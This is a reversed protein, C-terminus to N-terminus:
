KFLCKIYVIPYCIILILKDVINTISVFTDKFVGLKISSMLLYYCYRFYLKKDSSLLIDRLENLHYLSAVLINYLKKESLKDGKKTVCLSDHGVVYVRTVEPIFRTKYKRAAKAWRIGEPFNSAKLEFLFLDPVKAENRLVEVKRCGHMESRKNEYYHLTIYDSDYYPTPLPEGVLRGDEYVSRAKVEWFVSYFSSKELERWAKDFVSLATPLIPDDDDATLVYRGEFLPTAVRWATHKGGNPKDVFKIPVKNEKIFENVIESTNDTSGDSVIVWEFAGLYDQKLICDYLQSLLNGRNYTATFITFRYKYNM